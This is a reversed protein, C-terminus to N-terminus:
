NKSSQRILPLAAIRAELSETPDVEVSVDRISFHAPGETETGQTRRLIM